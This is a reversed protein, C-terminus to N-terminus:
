GNIAIIVYNVTHILLGVLGGVLTGNIRIFQLDKGIQLEIRESTAIPDWQDITNTILNSIEHGYNTILYKASQEGWQDIKEALADDELISEGFAIVTREMAQALESDSQESQSLLAKKLDEWLSGTFDRVASEKLLDQKIVREKDFIDQSHKLNDMFENMGIVMRVRLPHLVDIQMDHLTNSVSRVIKSYIAKDVSDPFWWPTEQSVHNQIDLDSDQLIRLGAAVVTDILDQQRKGATLFSLLDGIIPALSTDNIKAALKTEILKQIDEDNVVRVIGGLGETIQEAVAHANQPRVLWAAISRSLHMSRIKDSIVKESLFNTQVFDGFQSAIVHKRLPIIATHPIKIGLPHRFLATVAFWDAIAGVMAAEATAAVFGIWVFHHEYISATVYIGSVMLLLGTALQKM